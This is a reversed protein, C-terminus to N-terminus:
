FKKQHQHNHIISEERGVGTMTVKQLKSLQKVSFMYLLLLSISSVVVVLEFGGDTEEIFNELNMGYLAATYMVIGMSLLGTSFKLGLLMLENRNSDLVVNIIEETTKIQSILNEVTQVIEDSTQYYSELLLEVEEHNSGTRPHGNFIDTLFLANLEEDDQELMNYILDRILKAKQHFQTIKKSRILLYRLKERDISDELGHLINQLVTSHVKMETSLNSMAHILISELARFEYPLTEGSTNRLRDSLDHLFQSHSHSENLRSGGSSSRFSDFVVVKDHKILARINLLNLLIGYTRTVISPVIDVNINSVVTSSATASGHQHRSIKRFDRPALNYLRMFKQKPIEKGHHIMNGKDDFITCRIIDNDTGKSSIFSKALLVDQFSHLYPSFRTTSFPRVIQSLDGVRVRAILRFMCGVRNPQLINM